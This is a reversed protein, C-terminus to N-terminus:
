TGLVVISGRCKQAATQLLYINVAFLIVSHTGPLCARAADTLSSFELTGKTALKKGTLRDFYCNEQQM